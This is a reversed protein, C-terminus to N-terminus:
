SGGPPDLTPDTEVIVLFVPRMRDFVKTSEVLQRDRDYTIMGAAELKPLDRHQLTVQIQTVVDKSVETLATNHDHKVITQMLDRVSVPRNDDALVTLILRRQQSRCLDLVTDFDPSSDSAGELPSNYDNVGQNGPPRPHEKGQNYLHYTM